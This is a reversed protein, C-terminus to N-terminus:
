MLQRLIWIVAYCHVFSTYHLYNCKIAAGCSSHVSRRCTGSTQKWGRMSFTPEASSIRWSAAAPHIALMRRSASALSFARVFYRSEWDECLENKKWFVVVVNRYEETSVQLVEFGRTGIRGVFIKSSEWIQSAKLLMCEQRNNRISRWLVHRTCHLRCTVSRDSSKRM